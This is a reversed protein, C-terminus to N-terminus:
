KGERQLSTAIRAADFQERLAQAIDTRGRENAHKIMGDRLAPNPLPSEEIEQNFAVNFKAIGTLMFNMPKFAKRRAETEDEM